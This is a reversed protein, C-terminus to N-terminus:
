NKCDRTEWLIFSWNDAICTWSRWQFCIWYRFIIKRRKSYVDISKRIRIREEEELVSRKEPILESKHLEHEVQVSVKKKFIQRLSIGASIMPEIYMCGYVLIIMLLYSNPNNLIQNLGGYGDFNQMNEIVPIVEFVIEALAYYCVVGIIMFFFTFSFHIYSIMYVKVNALVVVVGIIMISVAAMGSMKGDSFGSVSGLGYACCYFIFGAQLTAELIWLWFRYTKFLVGNLGLKYYNPDNILAEVSLERDFVAYLGIPAAAFALNFFQLVWTNYFIQASFVSLTGCYFLPMVLLVNKYFNFCILNANRRYCERGHVFMLKRLFSFQAISYDSARVAQKGELGAIGIGVHAATIMNVDNAGDGISLTRINPKSDRILKVIDAKQQPSVRCALVVSCAEALKLLIEKNEPRLARILAEGSIILSFIKGKEEKLSLLGNTIEETVINSKNGIVTVRLMENTLLNCSFGINIATEIKDGTLVWIKVGADRVFQITEPVGDQLKDEIATAGLLRLNNEIEEALVAIKADKNKLDQIAELYRSNWADYENHTLDRSAIVLTRLGENAYSELNEITKEKYLESSIRPLIVTDAGKCLLKIIDNPTRVIITMRKRDSNFEIINLVDFQIITNDVSVLIRQNEDRGVYEVGFFKAANVLALEDPSSAKYEIKGDNEESIITHCVALHMLFERALETKPNFNPDVFDVHPIKKGIDIHENTGFSEGGLSIKKFEMINCTLTGTKDSFIYSIQGLDENLNSSQVGAPMDIPEYYIDLDSAILIAQLFKVTELTVLLSVPVFNGFLLMWSFFMIIFTVIGNTNGKELELYVNTDSRSYSIWITYYTACFACLSIQLIFIYIIQKNMGRELNSYKARTKPSNLMIKTEHGTYVVIGIVWETNKLSSGRLLLQEHTLPIFSNNYKLLGYFSYILPNPDDCKIDCNFSDVANENKLISQTLKEALKHKLNTEGDLNKTEVYCMGKPDSSALLIIDACFYNDKDIKVFDGVKIDLWRNEEWRERSRKFIKRNNEENDSKKRKNDEMLDKIASIALVLSLPMLVTPIGNSNSIEPISQCVALILFYVNALKHFQEWMNKPFFTLWNYKSTSIENTVYPNIAPLPTTFIRNSSIFTTTNRPIVQPNEILPDKM